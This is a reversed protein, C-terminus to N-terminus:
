ICANERELIEIEAEKQKLLYGLTLGTLGGGLIAIRM